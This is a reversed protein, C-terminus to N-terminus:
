ITIPLAKRRSCEDLTWRYHDGSIPDLLVQPMNRPFARCGQDVWAFEHLGSCTHQHHLKMDQLHTPMTLERNCSNRLCAVPAASPHIDCHLGQLDPQRVRVTWHTWLCHQSCKTFSPLVAFMCYDSWRMSHIAHENPLYSAGRETQDGHAPLVTTSIIFSAQLLLLLTPHGTGYHEWQHPRDCCPRHAGWVDDQFQFDAFFRSSAQEKHRNAGFSDLIQSHRPLGHFVATTEQCAPQKFQMEDSTCTTSVVSREICTSLHTAAAMESCQAIM